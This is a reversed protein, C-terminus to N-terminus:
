KVAIILGTAKEQVTTIHACHSSTDLLYVNLDAAAFWPQEADVDSADCRTIALGPFSSRVAAIRDATASTATLLTQIQEASEPTIPM